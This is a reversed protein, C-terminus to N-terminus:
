QACVSSGLCKSSGASGSLVVLGVHIRPFRGPRVAPNKAPVPALGTRLLYVFVVLHILSLVLRRVASTSTAPSAAPMTAAALLLVAAVVLRLEAATLRLRAASAPAASAAPVAITAPAALRGEDPRHVV